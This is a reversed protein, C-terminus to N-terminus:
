DLATLHGDIYMFVFVHKTYDILVNM